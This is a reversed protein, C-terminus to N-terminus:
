MKGPHGHGASRHNTENKVRPQVFAETGDFGTLLASRSNGSFRDPGQTFDLTPGAAIGFDCYGKVGACVCIAELMQDRSQFSRMHVARKEDSSIPRLAIPIARFCRIRLRTVISKARQTM